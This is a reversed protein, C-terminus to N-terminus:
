IRYEVVKHPANMPWDENANPLDAKARAASEYAFGKARGNCDVIVYIRPPPTV